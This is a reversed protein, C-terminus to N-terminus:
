ESPVIIWRDNIRSLDFTTREPKTDKNKLLVTDCTVKATDGSIKPMSCNQLAYGFSKMANVSATFKKEEAANKFQRLGIVEIMNGDRVAQAYQNLAAQIAGSDDATPPRLVPPQAVIPQVIPQQAVPPQVLPLKDVPPQAVPPSIVRNAQLQKINENAGELLRQADGTRQDDLGATLARQVNSAVQQWGNLDKVSRSAQTASDLLRIADRRAPIKTSVFGQADIKYVGGDPLGIIQQFLAQAQDLNGTSFDRNANDWLGQEQRRLEAVSHNNKDETYANRLTAIRDTRPGHLGDAEKLKAMAGDYDGRGAIKTAEAILDDQQKALQAIPAPPPQKPQPTPDFSKSSPNSNSSISVDGVAPKRSSHLFYATGGSICSVLLIILAIGTPQRWIPRMVVHPLVEESPDSSAATPLPSVVTDVSDAIAPAPLDFTTASATPAPESQAVKKRKPKDQKSPTKREPPAPPPVRIPEVFPGTVLTASYALSTASEEPATPLPEPLSSAKQYVYKTGPDNTGDTDVGATLIDPPAAEVVPPAPIRKAMEELQARLEHLRADGEPFLSTEEAQQVIRTAAELKCASILTQAADLAEQQERRKAERHEYEMEAQHLLQSIDTDQGVTVLTQRALDMAETLEARVIRAKIERVRQELLEQKEAEGKRKRADELLIKLEVDSPFEALAKEGSGVADSFRAALIQKRVNELWHQRRGEREQELNKNRAYGVLEKLEFDDSFERLLSEGRLVAESYNGNSILSRIGAVDEKLQRERRQQDRGQVALVHLNKTTSDSPFQSLLREAADLAQDFQLTQLLRRIDAQRLQKQQEAQDHRATELLRAIEADAPFDQRAQTLVLICEDYRLESWLTRGQHLVETLRRQRERRAQEDRIQRLLEQAATDSRDIDLAHGLQREAEELDGEVLKQKAVNVAQRLSRQKEVAANVEALLQRAPGFASDIQIAAEAEAMAENLRGEQLLNRGAEVTRKVRPLIQERRIEANVRDRLDRAQTSVVTDIEFVRRVLEQAKSFDGARLCEEGQSILASVDAEQLRKWVPELEILIEDMSKYREAVEKKLMREVVAVVDPPTGPAADRLSPTEQMVINMMLTAANEGEFPRRGALLEYFLVGTAWIDSQADAPVNRFQQPSMYGLTGILTGTQTKGRDAVRAIGFDVVKVAGENTVMVNGPKIDRHIVPPEHKHAYDLARCVFVIYGVKQSLPITSRSEILKELSGGDLYQMAIFPTDQEKGLEFITVINPHQLDGASQAERYFRQLLDPNDALGTTITKLAVLRGIFPDRAKYVVGM